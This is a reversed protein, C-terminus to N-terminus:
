RYAHTDELCTRYDATIYPECEAANIVLKDVRDIDKYGLKIHAPFGAGGLGVLGSERVAALFSERDHVDPPCISPDIKQEGDTDLVVAKCSVGLVNRYETIEAVTGSCSAHIPVSFAQSSDGIKQGVLIPDGKKVLPDCPAGMHQLMPIVVREPIPCQQTEMQETNKHHPVHAGALRRKAKVIAM